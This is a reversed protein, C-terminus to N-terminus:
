TKSFHEDSNKGNKRSAIAVKTLRDDYSSTRANCGATCGVACGFDDVLGLLLM